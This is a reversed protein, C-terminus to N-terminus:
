VGEFLGRDTTGPMMEWAMEYLRGLLVGVDTAAKKGCFHLMCHEQADFQLNSCGDWKISGSLFVQAIALDETMRGCPEGMIEYLFSDGEGVIHYVKLDVYAEHAEMVATYQIDEWSITQTM